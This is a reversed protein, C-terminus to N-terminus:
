IEEKVLDIVNDLLEPNQELAEIMREKGQTKVENEEGKNIYFWAGSRSIVNLNLAMNVVDAVENIGAVIEGDKTRHPLTITIEGTKFPTGVSNKKINILSTISTDKDQKKDRKVEARISCHYPIANGGTTTTSAGYTTINARLQNILVITCKNDDATAAIERLVRCYAKAIKGITQETMDKEIEEQPALSAVSDIVVMGFLGSTVTKRLYNLAEELSTPKNVGLKSIDLGCMQAFSPDFRREADILAPIKGAKQIASMLKSAIVSKGVSNQGFIEIIKGEPIGGGLCYDLTMVGTSIFNIHEKETNVTVGRYNLNEKQILTKEFKELQALDIVDTENSSDMQEIVTESM